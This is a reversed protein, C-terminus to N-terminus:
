RSHKRSKPYSFVSRVIPVALIDDPCGLLDVLACDRGFSSNHGQSPVVVGRSVKVNHHVVGGNEGPFRYDYFVPDVNGLLVRVAAQEQVVASPLVHVGPAGAAATRRRHQAPMNYLFHLGAAQVIHHQGGGARQHRRSPTGGPRM